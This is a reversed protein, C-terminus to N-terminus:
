RSSVSTHPLPPPGHHVTLDDSECRVAIFIVVVAVLMAYIALVGDICGRPTDDYETDPV